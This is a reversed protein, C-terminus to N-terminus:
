VLERALEARKIQAKHKEFAVAKVKQKADMGIGEIILVESQAKRM